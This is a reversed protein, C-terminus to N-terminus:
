YNRRRIVNLVAIFGLAIVMFITPGSASVPLDPTASIDDDPKSSSTDTNSTDTPDVDSTTTTPDETSTVSSSITPTTQTDVVEVITIIVPVALSYELGDYSKYSFKDQGFYGTNPTYVFSGNKDLTLVGYSVLSELVATLVDGDSDTDNELVGRARIRLENDQEVSYEDAFSTPATNTVSEVVNITVTVINGKDTGDFVIYTFKDVGVTNADYSFSGGANLVLKGYATTTDLIALLVDGDKDTDNQLVGLGEIKLITGVIVSYRDDYGVPATNVVVERVDLAVTVVNGKNKGDTVTYAFKDIGVFGTNPTYSFSGDANLVLKGYATTTDLITSLADGEADTDNKLVGPAAINLITDVNTSYRDDYGVPATNVVVEKVDLTVTVTNGKEKGDSVIYAFKDIGVFGKNPTYSFSGDDKLVLSGYATTTDLLASLVDRDADTDNKLVGPAAINLVTDVNTSYSDDYGVPATNPPNVNIVVTAVNGKNVGDSVVYVFKDIGVYAKNPTYSFSGDPNLALAGYSTTTDLIAQLKDGEADTDNALVGPALVKLLTDVPTNYNDDYAVPVALPRINGLEGIPSANASNSLSGLVLIAFVIIFMKDLLLTRRIM